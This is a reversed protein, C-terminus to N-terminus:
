CHTLVLGTRHMRSGLIVPLFRQVLMSQLGSDQTRTVSSRCIGTHPKGVAEPSSESNGTYDPSIILYKALRPIFKRGFTKKVLTNM